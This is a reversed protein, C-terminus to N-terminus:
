DLRGGVRLGSENVNIKRFFDDRKAKLLPPVSTQSRITNKTDKTIKQIM